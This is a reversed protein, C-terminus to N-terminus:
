ACTSAGRRAPPLILPLGTGPDTTVRFEAGYLQKLNDETVVSEPPGEALIRGESLLWLRDCYGASLTVDHTVMLITIGERALGRLMEMLSYQHSIDLSATPEDLLLVRPEQALVSAILVRQKEGGSLTAFARRALHLTGTREMCSEAIAEDRASELAFTSLHPYRGMLVVEFSSFPYTVGVEQPLYGVARAREQAPIQRLPKDFLSISGQAPQLTGLLLKLLTSKGEGNPGLVGLFEGSRASGTLDSLVPDEDYRFSLGHLDYASEPPTM